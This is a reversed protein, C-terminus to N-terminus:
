RLIARRPDDPTTVEGRLDEQMRTRVVDPALGQALLWYMKTMAAEVTMDYGSLAGADALLAGAAYTALDVGGHLCQTSVVVVVGRDCAHKIAALIGPDTPANGVGFAEIVMGQLPERLVAELLESKIGPFLRLSAVHAEGLHAIRLPGPGAARIRRNYLTVHVGGTGLPRYNPSTFADLADTSTKVSRNGRLLQGDFLLAVEPVAMDEHGAIMLADILNDRADSRVECLPIQSGTVIVPKNLGELMFSLASATYAMTDTGHLVIFGDFDEHSKIDQAIREWHHPSVDCSDLLPDYESVEFEPLAESGIEPMTGLTEELYGKEPRYVEGERRMGITGGTYAIYVRKGM